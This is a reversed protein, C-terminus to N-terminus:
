CLINHDGAITLNPCGVHFYKAKNLADAVALAEGELPSYCSEAPHTFRSGVPTIKGDHAAAFPEMTPCPCHEQLLWYVIGNKSWDTALCTPKNSDFIQVGEQIESVIAAKSEEFLTSLHSDWHFQTDPKLLQWFPMMKEAMSFAYFLKNVLGFWYCRNHKQHQFILFQVSTSQVHCSATPHSRLAQVNWWM